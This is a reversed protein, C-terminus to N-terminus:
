LRKDKGVVFNSLTQLCTLKGVGVPMEELSDTNSNNLHHLKILNGMDACLKKLRRCGELLLTHLNYLKSVSEPLTKIVTGSLNLYRLYRLDGVSDPLESIHYGRLSFVRLRQLKFLKPLISHALYGDRSNLM